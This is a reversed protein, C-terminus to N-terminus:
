GNYRNQAETVGQEVVCEAADLARDVAADVVKREAPSFAGIVWDVM